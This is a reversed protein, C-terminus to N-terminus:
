DKKTQELYIPSSLNLILRDRHDKQPVVAMPSIKLSWPRLQELESWLMIRSFGADVQLYTIDKHVLAINAPEL